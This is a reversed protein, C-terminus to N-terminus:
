MIVSVSELSIPQWLHLIEITRGRLTIANILEESIFETGEGDHAMWRIEKCRPNNELIFALPDRTPRESNEHLDITMQISELKTCHKAILEAEKWYVIGEVSILRLQPCISAMRGVMHDDEEIMDRNLIYLDTLGTCLQVAEAVREHNDLDQLRLVRLHDIFYPRNLVHAEESTLELERFVTKQEYLVERWHHCVLSVSSLSEFDRAIGQRFLLTLIHGLIERPLSSQDMSPHRQTLLKEEVDGICVGNRETAGM